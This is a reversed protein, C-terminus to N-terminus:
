AFARSVEWLIEGQVSRTLSPLAKKLEEFSTTSIKLGEEEADGM